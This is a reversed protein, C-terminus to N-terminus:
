FLSERVYLVDGSQILDTLAPTTQVVTGDASKRSLRLRGESGRPTPGGGQALAQMITMDREIRYAGPKQAEGYIYFVPAKDVYITDGDRLAVQADLDDNMFLAPIDIRKRFVKGDRVGVLVAVDSGTPIVGGAAAIMDSPRATNNELAFRGPKTVQGLVSVQNGRVMGLSITVQPNKVFNGKTLADAIAKQAATVSLGGLRVEGILPYSVVGSDPVRTDVTLDPNQFVLIRIDDGAGLRYDTTTQAGAGTINFAAIVCVALCKKLIKIM